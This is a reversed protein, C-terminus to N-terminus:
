QPLLLLMTWSVKVSKMMIPFFPLTSVGTTTTKEPATVATLINYCPAPVTQPSPPPPNKKDGLEGDNDEGM